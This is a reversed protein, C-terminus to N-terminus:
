GGGTRAFSVNLSLAARNCSNARAYL